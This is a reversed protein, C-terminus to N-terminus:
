FDGSFDIKRFSPRGCERLTSSTVLSVRQDECANKGPTQRWGYEGAPAACLPAHDVTSSSAVKCNTEPPRGAWYSCGRRAPRTPKWVAPSCRRVRLGARRGRHLLVQYATCRANCVQAWPREARERTWTTRRMARTTAAAHMARLGPPRLESMVVCATTPQCEASSTSTPIRPRADCAWPWNGAAEVAACPRERRFRDAIRRLISVLALHALSSRGEFSRARDQSSRILHGHVLDEAVEASARVARYAFASFDSSQAEQIAIAANIIAMSAM